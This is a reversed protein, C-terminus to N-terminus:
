GMKIVLVGDIMAIFGEQPYAPLALVRADSRLQYHVADPCFVMPYQLVYDFYARYANYHPWSAETSFVSNEGLGTITSVREMGPLGPRDAQTGIFAVPPQGPVFDEREELMCVVRTMMSLDAEAEREKKVYATNALVVNQWLLVAALVCAAARLVRSMRGPLLEERCLRFAFLLVFVYFFWIAYTTLDHADKGRALFYVSTMAFPTLAVLLLILAVRGFRYRKVWFVRIAAAALAASVLGVFVALLPQYAPHLLKTLLHKMAPKILGLYLLVPNTDSFRLANARDHLAIGAAASIVKTALWYLVGGLLLLGIGKLGRLIVQRVEDGDFLDMVSKWVMLTVTVAAYAQYIGISATVCLSGALLPIVGGRSWLYVALVSLLLAFANCDYEYLYTAIQSTCTINTVMIGATLFVLVRSKMRFIGDLLWLAAAAWTLGLLGILWPLAVPGRLVARYVPVMFRGLQLKWLEEAETAVFANLMDHSLNSQLFGYGHALLGWFFVSAFCLLLRQKQEKLLDKM